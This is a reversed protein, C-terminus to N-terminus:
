PHRCLGQYLVRAARRTGATGRSQKSPDPWLRVMGHRPDPPQLCPLMDFGSLDAVRQPTVGQERLYALPGDPYQGAPTERLLQYMSNVPYLAYQENTCPCTIYHQGDRECEFIISM